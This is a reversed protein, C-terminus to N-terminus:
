IDFTCEGTVPGCSISVDEEHSCDNVGWDSYFCDTIASERGTCLVEDLWIQTSQGRGYRNSPEVQDISGRYNDFIYCAM